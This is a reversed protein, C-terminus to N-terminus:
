EGYICGGPPYRLLPPASVFASKPGFGVGIEPAVQFGIERRDAGLRFGIEPFFQFGIERRDIGFQLGIELIRFCGGVKRPIRSKFPGPIHKWNEVPRRWSPM